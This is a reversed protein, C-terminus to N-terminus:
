RTPRAPHLLPDPRGRGLGLDALGALLLGDRRRGLRPRLLAFLEPLHRRPNGAGADHRTRAPCPTRRAARGVRPNRAAPRPLDADLRALLVGCHHGGLDPDPALNVALYAGAHVALARRRSRRIEEPSRATVPRDSLLRWALGRSLAGMPRLLFGAFLLLALGAPVYLLAKWITDVHWGNVDPNTWHYYLPMAMAGIATAFLVVEVIALAGGLVFRLLLYAQQRGFAGDSVIDLARGWYGARRVPTAAPPRVPVGLLSRVLVGEVRALWGVAARFGMLVPVVAPTIALLPALTWVVLLVAAGLIGMPVATILFALTRLSRGFSL